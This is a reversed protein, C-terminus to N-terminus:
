GNYLYFLTDWLFYPLIFSAVIVILILFIWTVYKKFIGYCCSCKSKDLDMMVMHADYLKEDIDHVFLVGITSMIAEYSGNPLYVANYAMISCLFTAFVAEIFILITAFRGCVKVFEGEFCWIRICLLYDKQLFVATLVMAMAMLWNPKSDLEHDCTLSELPLTHGGYPQCYQMLDVEVPVNYNFLMKLSHTMIISYLIYQILIVFYGLFTSSFEYRHYYVVFSHTSGNFLETTSESFTSEENNHIDFDNHDRSDPPVLETSEDVNM